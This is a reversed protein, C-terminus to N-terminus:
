LRSTAAGDGLILRAIEVALAEPKEQVVLHSAGKIRTSTAHRSIQSLIDKMASEPVVGMHRDAFIYHYPLDAPVLPMRTFIEMTDLPPDPLCFIGAESVKTSTLRTGRDGGTLGFRVYLDLTEPAWRGFFMKNKILAKAAEDKSPWHDRRALTQSVRAVWAKRNAPLAEPSFMSPPGVVPDILVISSFVSPLTTAAILAGSGGVSHGLGLIKRGRIQQGSLQAGSGDLRLLASDELHQRALMRPAPSGSSLASAGHSLSPDEGAIVNRTAPPLYLLLFNLLDRGQDPWSHVELNSKSANVLGSVGQHALDLSWIEEIEQADTGLTKILHALTPEFTEKHLGNAHMTVMTTRPTRPQSHAPKARRYRNVVVLLPESNEWLQRNEPTCYVADTQVKSIEEFSPTATRKPEPYPLIRTRPWAAPFVFCDSNWQESIHPFVDARDLLDVHSPLTAVRPCDLLPVMPRLQDVQM